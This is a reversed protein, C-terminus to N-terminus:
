GLGICETCIRVAKGLVDDMGANLVGLITLLIAIASITIKAGLMIKKEHTKYFLALGRSTEDIHGEEAAGNKIAAKTLALEKTISKEHLCFLLYLVGIIIASLPLLFTLVGIVDANPNELNYERGLTFFLALATYLVVSAISAIFYIKRMKREHTIPAEAGSKCKDLVLLPTLLKLASKSMFVRAKGEDYGLRSSIVGNWVTAIVTLLSPIALYVLYSGVRERSYPNSGGTFYLHSVAIIFAIGTLVILVSLVIDLIKKQKELPM